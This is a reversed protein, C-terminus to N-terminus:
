ETVRQAANHASRFVEHVVGEVPRSVELAAEPVRDAPRQVVVVVIVTATVPVVVVAAVPVITVATASVVVVVPVPLVVVAATPAVPVLIPVVVVAVAATSTPVPRAATVVAEVPATRVLVLGPVAVVNRSRPGAM